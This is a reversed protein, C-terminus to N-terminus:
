GTCVSPESPCGFQPNQGHVRVLGEAKFASNSPQPTQLSTLRLPGGLLVSFADCIFCSARPRPPPPLPVAKSRSLERGSAISFNSFCLGGWGQFVHHFFVMSFTTVFIFELNQYLLVDPIHIRRQQRWFKLTRVAAGGPLWSLFAVSMLTLELRVEPVVLTAEM